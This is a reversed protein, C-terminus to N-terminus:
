RSMRQGVNVKIQKPKSEERKPLLLKLVGNDYDASVKDTDITTPLSFMRGFQGYPRESRLFSEEKVDEPLKREGQVVLNDNEVHVAISDQAVGPIDLLVVIGDKTEYIDAAPVFAGTAMLEQHQPSASTRPFVERAIRNMREQLLGLERFPDFSSM